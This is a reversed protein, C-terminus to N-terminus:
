NKKLVLELAIEAFLQTEMSVEATSGELRQKKKKKPSAFRQLNEAAGVRWNKEVSVSVRVDRGSFPILAGIAKNYKEKYRKGRM